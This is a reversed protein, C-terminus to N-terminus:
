DKQFINFSQDEAIDYTGFHQYGSREMVSLIEQEPSCHGFLNIFNFKETKKYDIIAVKGKDKLLPKLESFYKKPESIHHFSNRSFFVDVSNKTLPIKQEHCYIYEINYQGSPKVLSKVFELKSKDNDIAYVKGNKGSAYSFKLTFFGGGSGIDAIKKGKLNGLIRLIDQWNSKEARRNLMKPMLKKFM